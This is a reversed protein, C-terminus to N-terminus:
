KGHSVFENVMVSATMKMEDGESAIPAQRKQAGNASSIHKDLNEAFCAVAVSEEKHPPHGPRERKM